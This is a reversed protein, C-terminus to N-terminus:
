CISDRNLAPSRRVLTKISIADGVKQKIARTDDMCNWARVFTVTRIYFLAASVQSRASKSRPAWVNEAPTAQFVILSLILTTSFGTNKLDVFQFHM